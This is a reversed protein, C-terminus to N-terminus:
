VVLNFSKTGSRDPQKPINIGFDSHFNNGSSANLYSM